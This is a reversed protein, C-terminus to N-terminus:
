KKPNADIEDKKLSAYAFLLSRTLEEIDELRSTIITIEGLKCKHSDMEAFKVIFEATSQNYLSGAFVVPNSLIIKM